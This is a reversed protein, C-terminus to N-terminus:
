HRKLYPIKLSDVRISLGLRLGNQYGESLVEYLNSNKFSTNALTQIESLSPLSDYGSQIMSVLEGKSNFVPSGSFGQDFEGMSAVINCNPISKSKFTFLVKSNGQKKIFRGNSSIVGISYLTDNTKPLNKSFKIGPSMIKTKLKLVIYDTTRDNPNYKYIPSKSNVEKTIKDLDVLVSDYQMKGNVNKTNFLVYMKKIKLNPAGYFVHYCTAFHESDLLFGSGTGEVLNGHTDLFSSRCILTVKIALELITEPSQAFSSNRLLLLPLFICIAARKM